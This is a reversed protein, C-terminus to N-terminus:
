RRYVNRKQGYCEHQRFNAHTKEATTVEELSSKLRTRRSILLSKFYFLGEFTDYNSLRLVSRIDYTEGRYRYKNHDRTCCLKSQPIEKVRSTYEAAKCRNHKENDSISGIQILATVQQSWTHL